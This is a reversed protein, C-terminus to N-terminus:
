NATTPTLSVFSWDYRYGWTRYATRYATHLQVVTQVGGISVPVSVTVPVDLTLAGHPISSVVIGGISVQAAQRPEENTSTAYARKTVTYTLTYTGPTLTVVQQWMPKIPYALRETITKGAYTSRIGLAGPEYTCGITRAPFNSCQWDAPVKTATNAYLTFAQADPNSVLNDQASAAIAFLALILPLIHKM